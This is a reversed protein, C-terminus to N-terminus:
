SICESLQTDGKKEDSRVEPTTTQHNAKTYALTGYAAFHVGMNTSQPTQSSM